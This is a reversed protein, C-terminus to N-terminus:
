LFLDIESTENRVKKAIKNMERGIKESEREGKERQAGAKTSQWAVLFVLFSPDEVFSMLVFMCVYASNWLGMDLFEDDSEAATKM